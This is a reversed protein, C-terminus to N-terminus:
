AMPVELVPGTRSPPDTPRDGACASIHFTSAGVDVVNVVSLEIAQRGDGAVGDAAVQSSLPVPVTPAVAVLTKWSVPSGDM